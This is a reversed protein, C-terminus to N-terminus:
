ANSVDSLGETPEIVDTLRRERLQADARLTDVVAPSLVGQPLMRKWKAEIAWATIITSIHLGNVGHRRREGAWDVIDNRVHTNLVADGFSDRQRVHRQSWSYESGLFYRSLIDDRDVPRATRSPALCLLDFVLNRVRLGGTGTTEAAMVLLIWRYVPDERIPPQVSTPLPRCMDQLIETAKLVSPPLPGRMWDPMVIFTHMEYRDNNRGWWELVPYM